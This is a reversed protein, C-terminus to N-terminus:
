ACFIEFVVVKYAEKAYAFEASSKPAVVVMESCFKPVRVPEQTFYVYVHDLKGLPATLPNDKLIRQPPLPVNVM